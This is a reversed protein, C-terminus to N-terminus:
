DAQRRLFDQFERAIADGSPVDDSGLGSLDDQQEELRDVMEKIEPNAAVAQSVQDEFSKTADELEAVDLPIGTLGELRRM